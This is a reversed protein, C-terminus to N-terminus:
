GVTWLSISNGAHTDGRIKNYIIPSCIAANGVAALITATVVSRTNNVQVGTTISATRSYLICKTKKIDVYEYKKYYINYLRISFM